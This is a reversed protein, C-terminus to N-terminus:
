KIGYTKDSFNESKFSIDLTQKENEAESLDVSDICYVLKDLDLGLFKCTIHTAKFILLLSLFTIRGQLGFLITSRKNKSVESLKVIKHAM